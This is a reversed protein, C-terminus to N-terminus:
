GKNESYKLLTYEMSDELAKWSAAVVDESVGVTTYSDIGYSSTLLVRVKSATTSKSDLVRVKYDILRVNAIEPYFHELAKRLALDLANVPGNGEAAMLHLAGAVDVKVVANDAARGKELLNTHISYYILKFFATFPHFIRRSLLEFSADAGEFQYGELELRKIEELVQDVKELAMETDPLLQKLKQVVVARGSIESAPLRRRNGVAEPTIHEYSRANKMVGDAHMGAKHAFAYKGVYALNGPMRVNSIAFVEKVAPTLQKMRDPKILEIGYKLALTALVSSLNANGCREGFGTLTGQIHSVGQLMAALSNAVALSCDDHFHVGIDISTAKQVAAITESVEQTMGGGNTDCLCLIDAGGAVAAELTKMAFAAHHRYGDFFHEADYIVTKGKEKLFRCSDQIMALNEEETTDLVDRVHLVWSKGFVTCVPTNAHLLANLGRDMEATQHKRRTSGFAAIASHRLGLSSVREFFALDKPNSAPNGAEIYDIGLDDLIRVISLKDEISFSIGIGQAGDRLTSDLVTMKKM